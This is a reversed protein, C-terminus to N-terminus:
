KPLTQDVVAGTKSNIVVFDMGALARRVETALDRLPLDPAAWVSAGQSPDCEPGCLAWAGIKDSAVVIVAFFGLGDREVRQTACGLHRAVATVCVSISLVDDLRVGNEELESLSTYTMRGWRKTGPWQISMPCLTYRGLQEAPPLRGRCLGFRDTIKDLASISASSSLILSRSM